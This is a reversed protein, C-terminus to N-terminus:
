ATIRRGSFYFGENGQHCTHIRPLHHQRNDALYICIVIGYFMGNTPM